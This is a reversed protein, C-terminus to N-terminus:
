TSIMRRMVDALEDIACADVYRTTALQQLRRMRSVGVTGNQGAYFPGDAIAIFRRNRHGSLSAATIFSQLDHYQNAQAGGSEKTYKHAAYFEAGGYKWRFDISKPIREAPQMDIVEDRRLIQGSFVHLAKNPLQEFEEVGPLRRIFEAAVKEFLNQTNPNKAFLAAVVDNSKIQQKVHSVTFGHLACFNKIKVDIEGAAAARRVDARNNAYAKRFEAQYDLPM